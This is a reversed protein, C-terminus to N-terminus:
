RGGSAEEFASYTRLEMASRGFIPTATDPPLPVRLCGARSNVPRARTRHYCLIYGSPTPGRQALGSKWIRMANGHQFIGARKACPRNTALSSWQKSTLELPPVLGSQM